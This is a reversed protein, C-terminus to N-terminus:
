ILYLYYKDSIQRMILLRYNTTFIAAPYHNTNQPFLTNDIITNISYQSKHTFYYGPTNPPLHVVAGFPKYIERENHIFINM